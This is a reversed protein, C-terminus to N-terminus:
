KEKKGEKGLGAIDVLQGAKRWDDDGFDRAKRMFDAAHPSKHVSSVIFEVERGAIKLLRWVDEGSFIKRFCPPHRRMLSAM